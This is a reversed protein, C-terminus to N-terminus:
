EHFKGSCGVKAKGAQENEEALQAGRSVPMANIQRPGATTSSNPDDYANAFTIAQARRAGGEVFAREVASSKKQNLTRPRLESLMMVLLM